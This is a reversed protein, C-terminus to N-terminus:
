NHKMKSNYYKQVVKWDHVYNIIENAYKILNIKYFPLTGMKPLKNCRRINLNETNEKYNDIQLKKWFDKSFLIIISINDWKLNQIPEVKVYKYQQWDRQMTNM